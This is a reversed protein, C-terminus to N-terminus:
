STRPRLCPRRPDTRLARVHGLSRDTQRFAPQSEILFDTHGIPDRDLL